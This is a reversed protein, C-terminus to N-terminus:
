SSITQDNMESIDDFHEVILVTRIQNIFRFYKEEATTSSTLIKIESM